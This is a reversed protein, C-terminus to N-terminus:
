PSGASDVGQRRGGGGGGFWEGLAESLGEPGAAGWPAAWAVYGDPRVLMAAVDLAKAARAEVAAYHVGPVGPDETLGTFDLLLARCTGFLEDLTPGDALELNPCHRGALPHGDRYRIDLGAMMELLRTNVQPQDMLEAFLDRLAGTHPDPRMLAVQARTNALVAAAVPHREAGYTDLLEDGTTGNVVAALKWGLNMADGIGLNLGQGGFPSHVHAADGALLVRGRRYATVQRANDTFRTASKVGTITVDTGSVRRLSAQLEERTVEADRDAPPGDFEVTLIRGPFPGHVYLGTPTRNWGGQLKGPDDLTVMAQHGTIVPDTGPFDFGAAKRVGSRGGDCGVLYGARVTSGGLRVTVGSDDADFGQVEVGRRIEVGLGRVHEDLLKELVAQPVIAAEMPAVGDVPPPGGLAADLKWLGAFHTTTPMKAPGGHSSMKALVAARIEALAGGLGRRVLSTAAIPGIAGAKITEDIETLRELVLARVGALALEGALVLGVPGAGVIVVQPDTNDHETM